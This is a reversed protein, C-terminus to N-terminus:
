LLIAALTKKERSAGSCGPSARMACRFATSIEVAVGLKSSRWWRGSKGYLTPHVRGREWRQKKEESLNKTPKISAENQQREKISAKGNKNEGQREERSEQRKENINKSRRNRNHTTKPRAKEQREKGKTGRRSM